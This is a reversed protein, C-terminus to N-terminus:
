RASKPYTAPFPRITKEDVKPAEGAKKAREQEVETPSILKSPRIGCGSAM